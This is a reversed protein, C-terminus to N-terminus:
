QADVKVKSTVNDRGKSSSTPQPKKSLEAQKTTTATQKAPQNTQEPLSRAQALAKEMAVLEKDHLAKQKNVTDATVIGMGLMSRLANAAEEQSIIGQEKLEMIENQQVCPVGPLLIRTSSLKVNSLNREFSPAENDEEPSPYEDQEEEASLEGDEKKATNTLLQTSKTATHVSRRKKDTSGNDDPELSHKKSGSPSKQTLIPEQAIALFTVQGDPQKVPEVSGKARSPGKDKSKKEQIQRTSSLPSQKPEIVECLQLAEQLFQECQRKIRKLNGVVFVRTIHPPSHCTRIPMTWEYFPM